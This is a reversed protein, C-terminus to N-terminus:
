KGRFTDLPILKTSTQKGKQGSPNNRSQQQQQQQPKTLIFKTFPFPKDVLFRHNLLNSYAALLPYKSPGGSYVYNNVSGGGNQNNANDAPLLGGGGGIDLLSGGGGTDDGDNDSDSHPQQQQQKNGFLLSDLTDKGNDDPMISSGGAIPSTWTLRAMICVLGIAMWNSHM